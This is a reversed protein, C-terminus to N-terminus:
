TRVKLLKSESSGSKLSKFKAIFTATLEQGSRLMLVNERLYVDEALIMGPEVNDINLILEKNVKEQQKLNHNIAIFADVVAPDYRREINSNLYAIASETDMATGQMAGSLLDDFENVVGLIRAGVPIEEGKLKDPYGGGGYQEHHSRIIQSANNLPALTVLIAEGNTSHQQFVEKQDDTLTEYPTKLLDDPLGIKGIDHLLAAYRIDVRAAEDIGMKEAVLDAAEAIREGHATSEGERMGIIRSFVAISDIYAQEIQSNSAQLQEAVLRLEKTRVQVKEELSQNLEQLQINQQATLANLRRHEDRLHKTELARQVSLSLDNDDWPKAIYRYISGNNIAGVTSEMDSYGTLLMRVTDPWRTAVETLFHNGDMEPMRMDSMVIDVSNEELFELGEAGSNAIHITHGFRRFVRKLSMLIRSEDDVCLITGTM